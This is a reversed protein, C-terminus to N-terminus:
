PVYVRRGAEGRLARRLEAVTPPAALEFITMATGIADLWHADSNAILPIDPLFPYRRHAQSPRLHASLAAADAELDPPWLGLVGLLGKSPRDIHAPIVL